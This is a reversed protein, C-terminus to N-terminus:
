ADQVNFTISKIYGNLYLSDKEGWKGIAVKNTSTRISKTGISETAFVSGDLYLTLTEGNRRARFTHETKVTCTIDKDTVTGDSYYAQYCINCTNFGETIFLQMSRTTESTDVDCQSLIVGTHKENLYFVVELEFDRAGVNFLDSNDIYGYDDVGDFVLTNNNWGSTETNDFNYLTVDNQNGSEDTWTEGTQEEANLKLVCPLEVADNDITTVYVEKTVAGYSLTITASDNLEITNDVALVTVTQETAYNESTFTLESPSVTVQDNDSSITVKASSECAADLCVDFTNTEGESISLSSVSTVIAFDTSSATDDTDGDCLKMYGEYYREGFTRQAEASFHITGNISDGSLGESSVLYCKEQEECIESLVNLMNTATDGYGAMWDQQWEGMIFPINGTISRANNILTTLQTKYTSATNGEVIDSEGQHWLVAKFTGNDGVLNKVATIRDLMAEQLDGGEAWRGSVFSTGPHGCPVFLIKRGNELKGDTIYANIFTHQFAIQDSYAEIHDLPYTELEAISGDQKYQYTGSPFVDTDLMPTGYGVVNSQGAVVFIDYKDVIEADDIALGNGIPSGNIFIYILGDTHQGLTLTNIMGDIETRDREDLFTHSM